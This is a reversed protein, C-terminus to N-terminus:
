CGIADAGVGGDVGLGDGAGNVDVHAVGVNVNVGVRDCVRGRRRECDITLVLVPAMVM